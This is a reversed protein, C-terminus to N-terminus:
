NDNAASVEIFLREPHILDATVEESWDTGTEEEVGEEDVENSGKDRQHSSEGRNVM